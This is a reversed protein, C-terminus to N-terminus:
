EDDFQRWSLKRAVGPQEGEARELLADAERPGEGVSEVVGAVGVSCV